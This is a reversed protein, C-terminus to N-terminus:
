EDYLRIEGAEYFSPDIPELELLKRLKEFEEAAVLYYRRQTDEDTIEVPAGGSQALARRQEDNLGTSM